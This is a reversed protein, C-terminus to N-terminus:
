GVVSTPQSRTVMVRGSRVFETVGFPELKEFLEQIEGGHGTKEVVVYDQGAVLIRARSTRVLKQLSDGVAGADVSLRYLAVERDVTEGDSQYHTELVGVFASIQKVARRIRDPPARVVVTHRYLDSQDAAACTFSEIELRHRALCTTLRLLSSTENETLVSLTYQPDL